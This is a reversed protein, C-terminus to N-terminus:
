VHARGIEGIMLVTFGQNQYSKVIAIKDEPLLNARYNINLRQAIAAATRENDGTLLEIHQFGFNNVLNLAKPVESRLTDSAALIGILRENLSVFLLTKGQNELDDAIPLNVQKNMMSRNGVVVLNKNIKATIGKGPVAVFDEPEYLSVSNKQAAMRVASALPHESYSEASAAM